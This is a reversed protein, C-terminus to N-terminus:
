SKRTKEKKSDKKRGETEEQSGHHGDILLDDEHRRQHLHPAHFEDLCDPLFPPFGPASPNSLILDVAHEVPDYLTDVQPFIPAQTRFCSSRAPHLQCVDLHLPKQMHIATSFICFSTWISEIKGRHVRMPRTTLASPKHMNM